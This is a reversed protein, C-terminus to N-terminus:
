RSRTISPARWASRRGAVGPIAAATDGAALLAHGALAPAYLRARRDGSASALESMARSLTEVLDPEGRHAHWVGLLWMTEPGSLDAYEPGFNAKAFTEVELAKDVLGAGAIADLVMLMLGRSEGAAAVSDLLATAEADRGAAIMLGQLGLVGVWRWAREEGTPLDRDDATILAQYAGTACAPRAASASLIDAAVFVAM